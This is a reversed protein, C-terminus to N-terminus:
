AGVLEPTEPQVIEAAIQELVPKWYEVAVKDADYAMAGDRATQRLKSDGQSEYAKDLAARISEHRPIFQWARQPTYFAQGEVQWGAFCLEPMSTWGGVIVPTGCAQAELIPIGFGEGQAPNLLVDAANYVDCMYSDTYGMVNWYADAFIVAGTPMKLDELLGYLDLGGMQPGPHTHLYLAAKPHDKVFERWVWLVEPFSKRSPLGKNAAVMVALFDIDEIPRKLTEDMRLAKRARERPRITFKATDVGHPVYLPDLGASRLAREGFRSYAIPRWAAKLAERVSPPCPEHDVPLWPVWRFRSTVSPDFVWSDYLSIVIDAKVHEAHMAIIDNGHVSYGLPLVHATEGQEAVNLPAGSLGWNAFITVKHGMKAIRWWFLNTQNGYGSHCWPANSAWLINV